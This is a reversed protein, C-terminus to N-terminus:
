YCPKFSISLMNDTFGNELSSCFADFNLKGKNEKDAEHLTEDVITEIQDTTLNKGVMMTLVTQIEQKTIFGDNNIDYVKFLLKIKDIKDANPHFVSLTNVFQAFNLQGNRNVDFIAILRPLLPNMSLEPIQSFDEVNVTGKEEKDLRKFRKYLRRIDKQTFVKSHSQLEEIEETRLTSSANVGM